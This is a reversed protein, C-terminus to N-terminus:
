KPLFKKKQEQEVLRQAQIKQRVGKQQEPTLVRFVQGREMRRFGETMADRQETDLKQDKLAADIRLQTNQHIDDIKAKQEATFSLGAFYDTRNIDRKARPAPSALYPAQALAPQSSQASTILPAECLFCVGAVLAARRAFRKQNM